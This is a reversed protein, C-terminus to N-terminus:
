TEFMSGCRLSFLVYEAALEIDLQACSTVIPNPYAM